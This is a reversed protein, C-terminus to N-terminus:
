LNLSSVNLPQLLIWDYISYRDYRYWTFTIKRKMDLVLIKVKSDDCDEHYIIECSIVLFDVKPDNCNMILTGPRVNERWLFYHEGGAQTLDEKYERIIKRRKADNKDFNM